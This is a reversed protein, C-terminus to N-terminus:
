FVFIISCKFSSVVSFLRLGGRESWFFILGFVNLEPRISLRLQVINVRLPQFCLASPSLVCTNNSDKGTKGASYCTLNQEFQQTVSQIFFLIVHRSHRRDHVTYHLTYASESKQPLRFNNQTELLHQEVSKSLKRHFEKLYCLSHGFSIIILYMYKCLYTITDKLNKQSKGSYFLLIIFRQKCINFIM